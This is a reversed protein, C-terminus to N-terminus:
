DDPGVKITKIGDVSCITIVDGVTSNSAAMAQAPMTVSWALAQCLFALAGVMLSVRRCGLALRRFLPVPTRRKGTSILVSGLANM